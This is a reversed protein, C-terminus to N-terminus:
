RSVAQPSAVLALRLAKVVALLADMYLRLAAEDLAHEIILEVRNKEIRVFAARDSGLAMLARQVDSTCLLARARPQDAPECLWVFRADLAATGM